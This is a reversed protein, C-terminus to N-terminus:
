TMKPVKFYRGETDPALKLFDDRFVNLTESEDVKDVRTPTTVRAFTHVLPEIGKTDVKSLRQIYGLINNLESTYKELEAESLTLRGLKAVNTIEEKTVSM